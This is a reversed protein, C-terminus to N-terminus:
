WRRSSPSVTSSVSGANPIQGTRHPAAGVLGEFEALTLPYEDLILRVHERDKSDMHELKSVLVDHPHPIVLRVGPLDQHTMLQARDRWGEPAAFTESPWVEVFVGHREHYWSLEGMLATLVDGRETPECLLDVDRSSPANRLWFSLAASGFVVLEGEGLLRAADSLIAQVQGPNVM